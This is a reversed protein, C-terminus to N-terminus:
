MGTNGLGLGANNSNASEKSWEPPPSFRPIGQVAQKEMHLYQLGLYMGGKPNDEVWMVEVEGLLNLKKFEFTTVMHPQVEVKENLTVMLGEVSVNVTEFSLKRGDLFIQGPATMSKRYAKRQYLVNEVDYSVNVFELALLLCDDVMDAWVMEAEGALRLDHLYVDVRPSREIAHFLDIADRIVSRDKLDVLIGTLSLNKVGIEFEDGSLYILGKSTLNKRYYRRAESM